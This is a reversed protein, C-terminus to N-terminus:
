LATSMFYFVWHLLPIMWRPGVDTLIDAPWTVDGDEDGTDKSSQLVAYSLCYCHQGHMGPM